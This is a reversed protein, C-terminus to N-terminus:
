PLPLKYVHRRLPDFDDQLCSGKVPLTRNEFLVEASGIGSLSQFNFRVTQKESSMNVAILYLAGNFKKVTFRIDGSTCTVQPTKEQSLLVDRIQKVENFLRGITKMSSPAKPWGVWYFIGRVGNILSVYMQCEHEADTLDRSAHFAYGSAFLVIWAPSHEENSQEVILRSLRDVVSLQVNPPYTYCDVTPIKGPFQLKENMLNALGTCNELLVVPHYFDCAQAKDIADVVKSYNSKGWDTTFIEDFSYWSLIEPKEKLADIVERYKVTKGDCLQHVRIDTMFMINNRHAAELVGPRLLDEYRYTQIANVGYQSLLDPMEATFENEWFFGLPIFPKGNVVTVHRFRDLKVENGTRSPPYKQFKCLAKEIEVKGDALLLEVQYAGNPWTAMPIKKELSSSTMPNTESFVSGKENGIDIKLTASKLSTVDFASKISLALEKETTYYDYQICADLIKQHIIETESFHLVREQSVLETQMSAAAKSDTGNLKLELECVSRPKIVCTTRFSNIQIGNRDLVHCVAEGEFRNETDNYLNVGLCTQGGDAFKFFANKMGLCYNKLVETSLKLHGFRLPLHFTGFTPAWCSIEGHRPNNRCVNIGFIPGSFTDIKMDYFPLFVEATWGNNNSKKATKVSWKGNWAVDSINDTDYCVGDENFVLHRYNSRTFKSDLFIEISPDLWVYEDRQKRECHISNSDKEDVDIGLYLGNKTYCFRVTTGEKVPGGDIARLPLAQLTQWVPDSMKGDMVPERDLFKPTEEPVDYLEKNVNGEHVFLQKDADAYRFPTATKGLELQVGDVWVVGKNIMQFQQMDGYLSQDERTCTMSYRKWDPTLEFFKDKLPDSYVRIKVGPRDAKMYASLTYTEGVKTRFNCSTLTLSSSVPKDFPNELRMSRKGEWATSTDTRFYRCWEKYHTVWYPDSIGWHSVGWFDPLEDLTCQEFGANMAMNPSSTTVVDDKVKKTEFVRISLNQLAVEELYTELQISSIKDTLHTTSAIEKGNIKLGLNQGKVVLVVNTWAADSGVPLPNAFSDGFVEHIYLEPIWLCANTPRIYIRTSGGQQNRFLVDFHNDSSNLERLRRISFEIEYSYWGASKIDITARGNRNQLAGNHYKWNTQDIQVEPIRTQGSLDANIIKVGNGTECFAQLPLFLFTFGLLYVKIRM